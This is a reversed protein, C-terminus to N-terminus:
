QSVQYRIVKRGVNGTQDMGEVIIKYQGNGDANYFELAAEGTETVEVKPNWYITTRLDNVAKSEATEYKPQYFKREKIYGLPFLDIVNSKPLLKEIETLSMRPKKEVKKTYISVVGNNQYMRSVTGLDDKLFIEIGEIDIVNIGNLGPEDIAMGNLFFQVPVRSGGNYDRTVYYKQTQSDYTIGTLLTTLCMTLVNCGALRDAEIRHEPMSLGSISPFDKNTIVKKQVGTIAVEDLLISKRYEKKSNELYPAITKDINLVFNNKYANNKDIEPYYSQDMNIVLSRYNDNGRANVTVKSSDSFVLDKFVFRGKADTYTDKRISKSPISLLLGGNPVARGTNLRLTGAIEIGQEPMFSLVPLKENILDQYEFRRFGQTMLLANLAKDKDANKENFYFNPSEVYGKLDSTLLFNSVISLDQNDDYPVKSEDIVSISYSGPYKQGNNLVSLKLNVKEKAKYQQKNVALNIDLLKESNVFVLRESIVKGSTSLLSVQAIGNPLREKPIVIMATAGKMNAQAAYVLHGNSQVLVYYSQNPQKAFNEESTVIAMNVNTEDQKIFVVNAKNQTVEPLKFKREQGNSFKLVAEYKENALPLLNFYGMGLGADSFEAVQKGKSDVINGKVSVGKGESSVAKFAVNKAVGALLDGGEPFFQVDVDWLSNKMSFTSTLPKENKNQQLSVQLFSKKLIERDKASLNVTVKGMADTEGKGDSITEWGSILSWNVKSNILLKGMADRFQIIAQSKAASQDNNVFSIETVLKKNIVDGVPVIKNFFYDTSFNSMWKTYARFRYNEQTLYQPDLVLFGNGVGKDLPIKLTQILSDRSNLVEVYAIKSPDYEALNRSLYTNFWLTDGVAYYPKDFHLHVKEVPYVQFYKQVREVITNVPLTAETTQAYVHQIGCVGMTFTLLKIYKM